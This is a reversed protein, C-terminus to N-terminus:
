HRGASTAARAAPHTTFFDYIAATEDPGAPESWQEAANGGSWAHGMGHVLWLQALENGHGDSYDSTTYSQGARTQDLASRAPASPVSGNESGDDAWDAAVQGARVLQQANVPPVIPDQDGEFVVFPVERARSGMAQYAARGSQEPDESRYGACAAGAQYECGSGVGVAAYRDPYTTGMVEAMAGGASLGTVYIRRPDVTYQQRIRDTIGAILSPEGAGRHTNQDQFWNWCRLYNNSTSQEPFVVIFGKAAALADFRTLRRFQDATQTCGHLAVILPRARGARYTAPVYLEYDLKGAANTYGGRTLGRAPAARRARHRHPHAATASQAHAIVALLAAAAALLLARALAWSGRRWTYAM